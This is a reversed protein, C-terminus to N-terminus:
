FHCKTTINGLTSICKVETTIEFIEKWKESIIDTQTKEYIINALVIQILSSRLLVWIQVHKCKLYKKWQLKVRFFREVFM